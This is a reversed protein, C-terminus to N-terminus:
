LYVSEKKKTLPANRSGGASLGGSPGIIGGGSVHFFGWLGGSWLPEQWIQFLPRLGGKM